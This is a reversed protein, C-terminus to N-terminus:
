ILAPPGKNTWSLLTRELFFPSDATQLVRVRGAYFVCELSSLTGLQKSQQDALFHCIPCAESHSHVITEKGPKAKVLFEYHPSHLAEVVPILFFVTLLFFVGAKLSRKMRSYKVSKTKVCCLHM